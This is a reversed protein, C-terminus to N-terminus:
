KNESKYLRREYRERRKFCKYRKVRHEKQNLRFKQLSKKM